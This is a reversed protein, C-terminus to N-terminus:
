EPWGSGILTLEALAARMQGSTNGQHAVDQIMIKLYRTNLIPNEVEDKVPILTTENPSTGLQVTYDKLAWVWPGEASSGSYVRIFPIRFHIGTSSAPQVLRIGRIDKYEGLDVLIEHTRMTLFPRVGINALWETKSDNDFLNMIDRMDTVPDSECEWGGSGPIIYEVGAPFVPNGKKVFWDAADDIFYHNNYQNVELKNEERLIEMALLSLTHEEVKSQYQTVQAYQEMMYRNKGLNIIELDPFYLIDEMSSLNYDLDLKKVGVLHELRLSSVGLQMAVLAEFDANMIFTSTNVEVNPLPLQLGPLAEIEGERYITIKKDFNVDRLWHYNKGDPLFKPDDETGVRERKPTWFSEISSGNEYYGIKFSAMDESWKDLFLLLDDGRKFQKLVMSSFITLEEHDLTYPRVYVPSALSEQRNGNVDVKGVGCVSISYTFNGLGKLTYETANKDLLESWSGNDNEWKILISDRKPDDKVTWSLNVEEWGAKAKVDYCITLLSKPGDGAYDSYTDELDECSTFSIWGMVFMPLIRYLLKKM